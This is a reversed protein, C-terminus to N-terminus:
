DGDVDGTALFYVANSVSRFMIRWRFNLRLGKISYLYLDSELAHLYKCIM